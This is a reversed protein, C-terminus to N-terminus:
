RRVECSRTGECMPALQDVADCFRAYDSTGFIGCSRAVDFESWVRDQGNELLQRMQELAVICASPNTFSSRPSCPHTLVEAVALSLQLPDTANTRM